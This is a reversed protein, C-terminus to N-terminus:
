KKPPTVGFPLDDSRFPTAPIGAKNALNVVPFNKWGYRVAVAKQVKDSTVVVTDGEIVAKAPHFVKDEGALTFGTLEKGNQAVLGGGLHDFSVVAKPGDAVMSKYAPGSDEIKLGYTRSEALYALRQGVPAKQQPHIDTADGVDTIVAVGANKVKASAIAQAERLFAWNEGDPNGANFPALQVCYFSFDDGWRKRWDSIMTAYLNRYEIPKGANSEGQYWIAGRVTFPILPAIMGNYLSSPDGSGKGPESRLRPQGGPAPKGAKKAEEAATKWKALAAEYAEKEKAPDYTKKRQELSEVYYKLEPDAQLAEKSTWAEAPTGGWYTGILGVPVKLTKELEQGFFYAVASFGASSQPSSLAWKSDTPGNGPLTTIQPAPIANKPVMFLRLNPNASTKIAEPGGGKPSAQLSWEMNSQGSAIWVEGVLVDKITVSNPVSKKDKPTPKEEGKITLVGDTGAPFAALKVSWKGGQDAKVAKGEERKGDATKVSLSVYVEEGPDATGWIVLPKDRQLVMHDSFLVHPKIEANAPAAFAIAALLIMFRSLSM